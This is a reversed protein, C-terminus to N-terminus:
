EGILNDFLNYCKEIKEIEFGRTEITININDKIIKKYKDIIFYQVSDSHILHHDDKQGSNESIHLELIRDGYEEFLMKVGDLYNFDYYRSAVKLHGLDLLLYVRKDFDLIQKIEDLTNAYCTDNNNNPYLNELALKKDFTDYFWEINKKINIMDFFGKGDLLIENKISFDRKFGAHVSYYPIDFGDVYLMSQKIFERTSDSTDAFNLVCDVKPPPFYSHVLFNLNNKAKLAKLKEYLGDQYKSGGSLEINKTIKSIAEVSVVLDDCFICSSSVYVM